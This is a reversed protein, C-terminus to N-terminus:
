AEEWEGHPGQVLGTLAALQDAATAYEQDGHLAFAGNLTAQVELLDVAAGSPLTAIGSAMTVTGVFGRPIEPAPAKVFTEVTYHGPQGVQMKTALEAARKRSNTTAVINGTVRSRIAWIKDQDM